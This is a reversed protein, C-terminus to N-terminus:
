GGPLWFLFRSIIVQNEVGDWVCEGFLLAYSQM